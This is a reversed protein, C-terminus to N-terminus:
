RVPPDASPVGGDLVQDTWTSGNWWRLEHRHSPDAYWRPEPGAPGASGGAYAEHVPAGSLGAVMQHLRLNEPRLFALEANAATLQTRARGNAVALAIIGGVIALVVLLGVV